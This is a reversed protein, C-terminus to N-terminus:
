MEAKDRKSKTQGIVAKWVRVSHAGVKIGQVSKTFTGMSKGWEGQPTKAWLDYLEWSAQQAAQGMDWFVDSMELNVSQNSPATNMIAIVQSSLASSYQLGLIHHVTTGM